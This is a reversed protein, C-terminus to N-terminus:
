EIQLTGEFAISRLPLRPSPHERARLAEPLASADAQRGVAYVAEIRYQPLVGLVEPARKRDFGAMGHMCWGILHAQLAMYGSAAGADLSHTLSPADQDFGHPQMTTKSALFILASANKAWELNRPALLRVFPMWYATDRRAYIFRWPQANFSSPAWRAAEMMSMLEAEDIPEATFARPSWRSLFMPEVPHDAIRPPPSANIM